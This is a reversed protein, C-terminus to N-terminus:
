RNKTVFFLYTNILKAKQEQSIPGEIFNKLLNNAVELIQKSIIAHRISAENLLNSLLFLLNEKFDIGGKNKDELMSLIDLYINSQVLKNFIEQNIFSFNSLSFLIETECSEMKIGKLMSLYLDILQPNIEIKKEKCSTIELSLNSLRKMVNIYDNTFPDSNILYDSLISIQKEVSLSNGLLEPHILHLTNTIDKNLNNSDYNEKSMGIRHKTFESQRSTKRILDLNKTKICSYTQFGSPKFQQCRDLIKQNDAKM